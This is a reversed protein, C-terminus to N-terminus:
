IGLAARTVPQRAEQWRVAVHCGPQVHTQDPRVSGIVVPPHRLFPKLVQELHPRVRAVAFGVILLCARSLTRLRRQRSLTLLTPQTRCELEAHMNLEGGFEDVALRVGLLLLLLRM